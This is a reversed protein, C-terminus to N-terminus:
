GPTGIGSNRESENYQFYSYWTRFASVSVHNETHFRQPHSLRHLARAIQSENFRALEAIRM